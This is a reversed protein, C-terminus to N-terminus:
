VNETLVQRITRLNVSPLLVIRRGRYILIIIAVAWICRTILYGITAGILGAYEGGAYVLGLQLPIYAVLMCSFPRELHMSQILASSPGPLSDVVAAIILFPLLTTFASYSKGLLILAYPAFLVTAIGITISAIVVATATVTAIQGAERHRQNEAHQTCRPIVCMNAIGVPTGALNAFSLAIAF